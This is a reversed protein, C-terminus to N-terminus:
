QVKMFHFQENCTGVLDGPFCLVQFVATLCLVERHKSHSSVGAKM